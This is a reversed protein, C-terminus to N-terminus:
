WTENGYPRNRKMCTKVAEQENDTLPANVLAKWNRPRDVPWDSLLSKLREDGHRRAWLSGWRWDEARDVAGAANATSQVASKPPEAGLGGAEKGEVVSPCFSFVSRDFVM